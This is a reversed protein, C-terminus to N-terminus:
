ESRLVELPSNNIISRSNSLGIVITVIVIISFVAVAPWLSVVFPINFSFVALAWSGTLSIFLGTLAAISGLLLYELFTIRLIQKRSAGLTRLLVSEQMRQYKSIMVSGTLVIIGTFISFYAMFRIVFSVKSIIEDVTKLILNLDITSINPFREVLERQYAAVQEETGARTILVFFKPAKELVGEPFVVLFNTQVRQWDVKRISGIYTKMIVGHVNFSVQDGIDVQMDRALGEELSIFISDRSSRVRNYWRGKIIKESDIISDRYTVRYERNLVWKKIGSLSDEKITRASKEKLSHLKMTVIPVSNMVPLNHRRTISEVEPVQDDQIDFLVMNPQNKSGSFEVKRILIDQVFFLTTILATGLGITIVLILTQNNPRYLNSLSQRWIYPWGSPFYKKVLRIIAFALGSLIGFAIVIGATFSIANKLNNLQLYAFGGTFLIILILIIYRLKDPKPEEISARIALLPSINRISLLPLLAFLLSISIGVLIGLSVAKWSVSVAVDVPLFGEFLHPLYYLVLTGLAAGIVSGIFGMIGIQFLYILLTQNASAGLCRLVATANIKEKIYIHVSSAVGLCGLLLAVFATLNLFGTLNAYTRGMSEKRKEVTEYRLEEKDLRPHIIESVLKEVDTGKAFKIYLKYNTRSGKQLLGTAKLYQLPIFVPPAVTTSIGTRGPVKSVSGNIHFVSEGVKISDGSSIRYQLLLTKDVLAFQGERFTKEANAPTTEISGYFPYPGQLARVETLRSAGNSPFYVMSAFSVEEAIQDVRLSDFFSRVSSPIPQMSQVELDAGLLESAETNIEENLNDGFSNIAVLAAIGLIISSMFLLLRSRNKRSDRWAMRLLWM